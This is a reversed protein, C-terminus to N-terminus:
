KKGLTYAKITMTGYAKDGYRVTLKHPLKVGNADRYDACYVECPDEEKSFSSEFGVLTGDAPSYYWKATYSGIETRLVDCLLRTPTGDPLKMDPGIPYVPETGGHVFGPRNRENKNFGSAGKQLLLRYQYLALLLGGSGQPLSREAASESLLPKLNDLISNRALKVETVGDKDELWEIKLEGSRGDQLTITGDATWAGTFPATDGMAKTAREWLKATELKNFYFNAFGPKVEVLKMAKSKKAKAQAPDEQPQNPQPRGPKSPASKEDEEKSVEKDMNGMLRVLVDRSVDARRYKLPLRWGGPFTGLVNKYQNTSTMARGAFSVLQDDEKAGRHTIDADPLFQSFKIKSIEAGSEDGDTTILAGLTAHDTDHGSKM